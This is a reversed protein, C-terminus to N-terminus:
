REKTLLVQMREITSVGKLASVMGLMTSRIIRSVFPNLPVGAHNLVISVQDGEIAITVSEIDATGRLSALISSTVHEIYGQIFDNLAIPANNVSLSVRTSAM